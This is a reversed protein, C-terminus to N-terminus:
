SLSHSESDNLTRQQDYYQTFEAPFRSMNTKLRLFLLCFHARHQLRPWCWHLLVAPRLPKQRVSRRWAAIQRVSPGSLLKNGNDAELEQGSFELHLTTQEGLAQDTSKLRHECARPSGGSRVELSISATDPRIVLDRAEFERATPIRKRHWAHTSYERKTKTNEVM